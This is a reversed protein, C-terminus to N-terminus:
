KPFSLNAADAVYFPPEVDLLLVFRLLECELIFEVAFYIISLNLIVQVKAVQLSLFFISISFYNQPHTVRVHAGSKEDDDDDCCLM